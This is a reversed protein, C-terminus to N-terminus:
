PSGSWLVLIVDPEVAVVLGLPGRWKCKRSGNFEIFDGPKALTIVKRSRPNRLFPNWGSDPHRHHLKLASV